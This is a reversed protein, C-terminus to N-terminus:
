YVLLGAFSGMSGGLNVLPAEMTGEWEGFRTRVEGDADFGGVFCVEGSIGGFGFLFGSADGGVEM